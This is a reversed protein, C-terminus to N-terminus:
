QQQHKLILLKLYQQQYKKIHTTKPITTQIKIHTTKPITTLTKIHTTKRISTPTKIYTTKTLTPSYIYSNDPEDSPIIYDNISIITNLNYVQVKSNDCIFNNILFYNGEYLLFIFNFNYFYNCNGYDVIEQLFDTESVNYKFKHMSVGNNNLCSFIYQKTYENYDAM